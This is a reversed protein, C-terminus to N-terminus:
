LGTGGSLVSLVEVPMEDLLCVLTIGVDVDM